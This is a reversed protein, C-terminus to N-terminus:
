RNEQRETIVGLQIILKTLSIGRATGEVVQNVYIAIQRRSPLSLM